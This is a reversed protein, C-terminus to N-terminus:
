RIFRGRQSHSTQCLLRQHTSTSPPAQVAAIWDKRPITADDYRAFEEEGSLASHVRLEKALHRLKHLEMQELDEPQIDPHRLQIMPTDLVPSNLISELFRLHVGVNPFPTHTSSSASSWSAM